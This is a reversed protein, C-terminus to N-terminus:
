LFPYRILRKYLHKSFLALFSVFRENTLGGIYLNNSLSTTARVKKNIIVKRRSGYLHEQFSKKNRQLTKICEDYRKSELEFSKYNRM